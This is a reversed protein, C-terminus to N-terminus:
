KQKQKKGVYMTSHMKFVLQKFYKLKAKIIFHLKTNTTFLFYKYYVKNEIIKFCFNKKFLNCRFFSDVVIM